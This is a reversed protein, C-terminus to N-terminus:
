SLDVGAVYKGQLHKQLARPLLPYIGLDLYLAWLASVRYGKIDPWNGGLTHLLLLFCRDARSIKGQM